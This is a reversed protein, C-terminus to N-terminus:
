AWWFGASRSPHTRCCGVLYAVSVPVGCGNEVRTGWFWRRWWVVGGMARAAALDPRRDSAVRAAGALRRIDEETWSSAQAYIEGGGSTGAGERGRRKGRSDRETGSKPKQRRTKVRGCILRGLPLLDGVGPDHGAGEERRVVEGLTVGM